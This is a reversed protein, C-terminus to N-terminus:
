LFLLFCHSLKLGIFDTKKKIQNELNEQKTISLKLLYIYIYIREPKKNRTGLFSLFKIEYHLVKRVVLSFCGTFSM